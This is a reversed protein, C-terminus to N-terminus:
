WAFLVLSAWHLLRKALSVRDRDASGVGSPEWACVQGGSSTQVDLVAAKLTLWGWLVSWHALM